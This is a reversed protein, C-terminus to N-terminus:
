RIEYTVTVDDTVQNQGTSIDPAPAASPAAAGATAYAMPFTRPASSNESFSTVRLISVGLSKALADAKSKADAIAKDRAQAQPANPDNFTFSLGSVDTAGKGGVAALLDGAKNTDRVKVTTTQNVQYGRLVQQSPPCYAPAGSASATQPCVAQQYDYEPQISYGTTQIDKPDIGQSKLYDTIANAKTTVDSQADAVASKETVVSYTFTAIDPVAFYEGHGSVSITNTAQIGAGIYRLGMLASAAEILLFVALLVVAAALSRRLWVGETGAFMGDM